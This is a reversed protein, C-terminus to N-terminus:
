PMISGRNDSILLNVKLDVCMLTYEESCLSVTSAAPSLSLALSLTQPGRRFTKVM